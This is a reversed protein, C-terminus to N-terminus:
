SLLSSYSGGVMSLNEGHENQFQVRNLLSLMEGVIRKVEAANEQQAAIELSDGQEGFRHLGFLAANGKIRHGILAIEFFKRSEIFSDIQGLEVKRKDLYRFALGELDSDIQAILQSQQSECYNM